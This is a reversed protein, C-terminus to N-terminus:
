GVMFPRRADLFTSSFEIEALAASPPWTRTFSCRGSSVTDSVTMRPVPASAAAATTSTRSSSPTRQHQEDNEFVFVSLEDFGGTFGQGETPHECLLHPLVELGRDDAAVVVVEDFGGALVAGLGNVRGGVVKEGVVAGVRVTGHDGLHDLREIGVGHERAPRVSAVLEHGVGGSTEIRREDGVAGVDARTVRPLHGTDLPSARQELVRCERGVHGQEGTPQMGDGGLDTVLLIGVGLFEVDIEVLRDGDRHHLVTDDLFGTDRQRSSRNDDTTTAADAGLVAETLKFLEGGQKTATDTARTRHGVETPTRMGVLDALGSGPDGRLDVDGRADRPGDLM